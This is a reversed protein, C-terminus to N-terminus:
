SNRAVRLVPSALWAANVYPVQVYALERIEAGPEVSFVLSSATCSSATLGLLPSEQNPLIAEGHRIILAFGSVGNPSWTGHPCVTLRVAATRGNLSISTVTASALAPDLPNELAIRHGVAVTTTPLSAVDLTRPTRQLLPHILAALLVVVVIAVMGRRVIAARRAYNPAQDPELSALTTV